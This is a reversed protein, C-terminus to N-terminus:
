EVSEFLPEGGPLSDVFGEGGGGNVVQLGSSVKGM